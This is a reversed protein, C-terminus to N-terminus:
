CHLKLARSMLDPTTKDIEELYLDLTQSPFPPSLVARIDVDMSFWIQLMVFLWETNDEDLLEMARAYRLKMRVFQMPRNEDFAVDRLRLKGHEFKVAAVAPTLRFRRELDVLIESLGALRLARRDVRTLEHSWWMAAPGNLLAELWQLIQRENAAAALPDQLFSEIHEVFLDVDTFVLTCGDTVMGAGREDLHSPNFRGVDGRKLQSIAPTRPTSQLAQEVPSPKGAQQLPQTAPSHAGVPKQLHLLIDAAQKTLDAMQDKLNDKEQSLHLIQTAFYRTMDLVMNHGSLPELMCLFSGSDTQEETAKTKQCTTTLQPQPQKVAQDNASQNALGDIDKKTSQAM